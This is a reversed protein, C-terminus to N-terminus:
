EERALLEDLELNVVENLARCIRENIKEAIVNTDKQDRIHVAVGKPIALLNIRLRTLVVGMVREIDATKHLEGEVGSLELEEKKARAILQRERAKKMEETERSSRSDSLERYHRSIKIFTELPKYFDGEKRSGSPLPTIVGDRKLQSLRANTVGLYKAVEGTTMTSRKESTDNPTAKDEPPKKEASVKKKAAPMPKKSATKKTTDKIKALDGGL